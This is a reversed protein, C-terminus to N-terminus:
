RFQLAAVLELLRQAMAAHTNNISCVVGHELAIDGYFSDAIGRIRGRKLQEISLAFYQRSQIMRVNNLNQIQALELLFPM